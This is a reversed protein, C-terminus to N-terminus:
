VLSINTMDLIVKQAVIDKIRTLSVMVLMTTISWYNIRMSGGIRDKTILAEDSLSAQVTTIM